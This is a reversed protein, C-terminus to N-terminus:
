MEWLAMWGKGFRGGRPSVCLMLTVDRACSMKAVLGSVEYGEVNVKSSATIHICSLQNLMGSAPQGFFSVM